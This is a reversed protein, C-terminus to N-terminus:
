LSTPRERSDCEPTCAATDRGSALVKWAIPLVTVCQCSQPTGPLTLTARVLNLKSFGTPTNSGYLSHEFMREGPRVHVFGSLPLDLIRQHEIERRIADPSFTPSPRIRTIAGGDIGFQIVSLDEVPTLRKSRRSRPALTPSGASEAVRLSCVARFVTRM